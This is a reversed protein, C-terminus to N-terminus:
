AIPQRRLLRDGLRLVSWWSAFLAAAFLAGVPLSTCVPCDPLGAVHIDCHDSGGLFMWTCGCRFIADCIPLATLFTLLGALAPLGLRRM